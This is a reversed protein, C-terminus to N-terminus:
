IEAPLTFIIMIINWKVRKSQAQSANLQASGASHGAMVRMQGKLVVVMHGYCYIFIILPSLFFFFFSCSEYIWEPSLLDTVCVGVEVRSLVFSAPIAIVIGAFWAIAANIMWRKLYKKSWFPHVVKLYREVTVAVLNFISGILAIETATHDVFIACLFYGVAGTLYIDHVSIRVSVSWLFFVVPSTWCTRTLSWCTLQANRQSVHTTLSWRTFSLLTPQQKLSESLSSRMGTITPRSLLWSWSGLQTSSHAKHQM